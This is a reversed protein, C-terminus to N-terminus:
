RLVMYLILAICVSTLFANIISATLVGECLKRLEDVDETPLEIGRFQAASRRVKDWEDTM